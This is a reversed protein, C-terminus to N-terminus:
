EFFNKIAKEGEGPTSAKIGTKQIFINNNRLEETLMKIFIGPGDQEQDEFWTTEIGCTPSGNIGILGVIEFGHKLYEKMQYALDQVLSRCLNNPEASAMRRAIRTDESEVSPNTEPDTQRDLGLALLEPCPMQIIGIDHEVLIKTIEKITGPYHACRDLKANQNLVCQAVFVLRKSRRDDFM